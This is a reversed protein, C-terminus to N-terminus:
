APRCSGPRTRRRSRGRGRHVLRERRRQRPRCARRPPATPTGCVHIRQMLTREASTLVGGSRRSPAALHRGVRRGRGGALAGAAAAATLGFALTHRGHRARRGRPRAVRGGHGRGVDRAAGRAVRRGAWGRVARPAGGVATGVETAWTDAAAAALAGAAAGALVAATGPAPALVGGALVLGAFVGGNALVQAADRRGGKEVVGATRGAKAARRWRSLTSALVFYSILLGGWRWGGAVAAAGVTTAAAVGGPALSGARGALLAVALAAAAGQAARGASPDAFATAGV